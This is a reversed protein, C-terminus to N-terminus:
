GAATGSEFASALQGVPAAQRHVQLASCDYGLSKTADVCRCNKHWLEVVAPYTHDM